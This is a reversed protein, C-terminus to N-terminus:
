GSEPVMDTGVFQIRSGGWTLRKTLIPWSDDSGAVYLTVSRDERELWPQVGFRLLDALTQGDESSPGICVLKAANSDRIWDTLTRADSSDFPGSIELGLPHPQIEMTPEYAMGTVADVVGPPTLGPLRNRAM